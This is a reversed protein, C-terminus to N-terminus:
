LIAQNTNPTEL